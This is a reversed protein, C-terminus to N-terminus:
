ILWFNFFYYNLVVVKKLGVFAQIAADSMKKNSLFVSNM